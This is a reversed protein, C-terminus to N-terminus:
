ASSSTPITLFESGYLRFKLGAVLEEKTPKRGWDRQFERVIADCADAMIDAPGDGWIMEPGDEDKAFSRGESDQQWWGM